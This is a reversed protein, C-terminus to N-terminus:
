GTLVGPISFLMKIISRTLPSEDTVVKLQVRVSAQDM